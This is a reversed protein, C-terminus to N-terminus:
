SPQPPTPHPCFLEQLASPHPLTPQPPSPDPRVAGWKDPGDIGHAAYVEALVPPYKSDSLASPDRAFRVPLEHFM